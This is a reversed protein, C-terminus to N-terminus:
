RSSLYNTIETKIDNMENVTSNTSRRFENLLEGKLQSAADGQEVARIHGWM